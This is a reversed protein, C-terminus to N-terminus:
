NLLFYSSISVAEIEDEEEDITSVTVSSFKGMNQTHKTVMVKQNSSNTSDEKSIAEKKEFGSENKNKVLAGSIIFTINSDLQHRYFVPLNCSVCNLHHLKEIKDDGHDIYFTQGKDFTLKHANRKGDIVRAKDLPRMPLKEIDSDLILAMKGCLCYYCNLPKDDNYEEQDKSDSCAVSRSVIKPM